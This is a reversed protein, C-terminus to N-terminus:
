PQIPQPEPDHSNRDAHLEKRKRQHIAELYQEAWIDRVDRHHRHEEGRDWISLDDTLQVWDLGQARGAVVAERVVSLAWRLGPEIGTLPTQLLSDFRQRFRKRANPERPERNGLLVALAASDRRIHPIAVTAHLKCVMWAIGRRPAAQNKQRLPWWLGAFLDFGRTDADLGQGALSRLRSREGTGLLRANELTTIFRDTQSM